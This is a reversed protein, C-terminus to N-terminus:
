NILRCQLAFSRNGSSLHDQVNEGVGPLDIKVDIGLRDLVDKRGIGSLELLQPSKIAGASLIVKKRAHVVHARSTDTGWRFEVGTATLGEHPSRSDAFLVRAVTAQTLVQHASMDVQAHM